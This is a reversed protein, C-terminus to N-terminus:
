EAPQPYTLSADYSGILPEIDPRGPLTAAPQTRIGVDSDAPAHVALDANLQQSPLAGTSKPRTADLGDSYHGLHFSRFPAGNLDLMRLDLGYAPTQPGAQAVPPLVLAWALALSPPAIRM